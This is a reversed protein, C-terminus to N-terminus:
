VNSSRMFLLTTSKLTIRLRHWRRHFKCAFNVFRSGCEQSGRCRVVHDRTTVDSKLLTNHSNPCSWLNEYSLDATQIWREAAVGMACPVCASIGLTVKKYYKTSYKSSFVEFISCFKPFYQKKELNIVVCTYQVVPSFVTKEDLIGRKLGLFVAFRKQLTPM